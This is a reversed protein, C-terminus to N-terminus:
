RRSVASQRHVCLEDWRGAAGACQRPPGARARGLRGAEARDPGAPIRQGSLWPPDHPRYFRAQVPQCSTKGSKRLTPTYGVCDAMASSISLAITLGLLVITRMTANRWHQKTDGTESISIGTAEPLTM